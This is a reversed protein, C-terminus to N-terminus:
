PTRRPPLAPLSYASRQDAKSLIVVSDVTGAYPLRTKGDYDAPFTLDPPLDATSVAVSEAPAGGLGYFSRAAENRPSADAKELRVVGTRVGMSQLNVPLTSYPTTARIAHGAGTVLAVQGTLSFVDSTPM